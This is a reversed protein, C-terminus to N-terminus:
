VFPNSSASLDLPEYHGEIPKISLVPIKSHNIIQKAFAGLFMGTLHSEHDTMIVILDAKVQDSYKMAEEALNKGTVMKKDYIIKAKKLAKEVAGIKIMFKKENAEEGIKILGLLHVNADYKLALKIVYDVKQRSHLSSDIPMVINKFGPTQVHTQITIVPCPAINVTKHANSGIFFEQFGNTGHTGMVVIDIANDKVIEALEKAVRGNSIVPIVKIGYRNSIIEVQENLTKTANKEIEDTDLTMLVSPDYIPYTYVLIEIVHLLYLDANFLRAMFAGHELALQGTESFDIPILIRNIEFTKM